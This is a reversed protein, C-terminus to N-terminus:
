NPCAVRRSQLGFCSHVLNLKTITSIVSTGTSYQKSCKSPFNVTRPANTEISPNNHMLVNNENSLSILRKTRGGGLGVVGGLALM